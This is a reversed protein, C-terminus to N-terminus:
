TVSPKLATFLERAFRRNAIINDDAFFISKKKYPNTSGRIAKVEEVVQEVRKSRLRQGDFATVSCFECDFPCGKTTQLIDVFYSERSLSSRAPAPSAAVWRGPTQPSSQTRPAPRPGRRSRRRHQERLIDDIRHDGGIYVRPRARDGIHHSGDYRM